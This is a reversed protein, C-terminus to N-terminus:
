EDRVILPDILRLLLTDPFALDPALRAHEDVCALRAVPGDSVALALTVDTFLAAGSCGRSDGGDEEVQRAVWGGVGLEIGLHARREGRATLDALPLLERAALKEAGDDVLRQPNGRRGRPHHPALLIGEGGLREDHVTM